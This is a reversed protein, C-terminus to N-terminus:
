QRLGARCDHVTIRAGAYDFGQEKVIEPHAKAVNFASSDLKM